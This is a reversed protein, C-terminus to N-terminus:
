FFNKKTLTGPTSGLSYIQTRNYSHIRIYSPDAHCNVFSFLNSNHYHLLDGMLQGNNYEEGSTFVDVM